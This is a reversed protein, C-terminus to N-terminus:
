RPWARLWDLTDGSLVGLLGRVHTASAPAVDDHVAAVMDVERLAATIIALTRRALHDCVVDNDGSPVPVCPRPHARPEPATV